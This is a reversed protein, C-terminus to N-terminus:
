SASAGTLDVINPKTAEEREKARARCAKKHGPWAAAGCAAGCYRVAHCESCAKLNNVSAQAATKGCHDCVTGPLIAPGAGSLLALLAANDPHDEQAVMLPTHGSAMEVDLRAGAELLFGCVKESGSEAAVHLATAGNADAVNVEAPTMKRRAPQGVLLVCCSLHGAAARMLPPRQLNDKAMRNAGRKLLASAMQQQGTACALHLATENFSSTARGDAYVGEVTRVDVDSMLPLLLEFSEENALLACLHIATRGERSTALLNSAPILARVCERRRLMVASMLPTIAFAGAKKADAGAALLLQVCELRGCSAAVNLATGGDSGALGHDAGADLLLKLIRANGDFSAAVLVPRNMYTGRSNASIKAELACRVLNPLEWLVANCLYAARRATPHEALQAVTNKSAATTHSACKADLARLGAEDAFSPLPM